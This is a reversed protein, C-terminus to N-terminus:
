DAIATFARGAHDMIMSEMGEAPPSQAEYAGQALTEDTPLYSVYDNALSVAMTQSVCSADSLMKQFESFLEGPLSVLALDGARLMQIESGITDGIKHGPRDLNSRAERTRVINWPERHWTVKGKPMSALKGAASSVVGTLAEGMRKPHEEGVRICVRPNINGSGSNVFLATRCLGGTELADKLYGVYDASIALSEPGLTVPHCGYGVVLAALLGNPRRVGVLMVAPDFYGPHKGEADNWENVWRGGDAQVRRNHGLDPAETKATEFTGPEASNWAATAADALKSKLVAIYEADIETLNDSCSVTAPGSHTHTASVMIAESPLGTAESIRRRIDAVDDRFYELTDSTILVWGADGSRCALAEARLSHGLTTSKRPKYGHLTVGIPPTIDMTAIGMLLSDAM